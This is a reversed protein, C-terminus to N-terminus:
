PACVRLAAVEPGVSAPGGLLVVKTAGLTNIRHAADVPICDRTTLLIPSKSAVALPAGALADPFSAGTALYVTDTSGTQFAIAAIHSSVFFRNEGFVRVADQGSTRLSSEMAESISATGGLLGIVDPKLTSILAAEAASLSPQSGDVLLVPGPIKAAAPSASLADAFTSGTALLVTSSKTTGFAANGILNRSVEYRDAGGIRTVTPAPTLGGLQAIVAPSVSAEGGLVVINKPSLRSLEALVVETVAGKTTLLIPAGRQAAISGGSLADAFVEGSALYVLPATGPAVVKSIAVSESYRDAAAIRSVALTPDLAVDNKVSVTCTASSSDGTAPDLYLLTFVSEGASTPAGRYETAVGDDFLTVGAPLSGAM